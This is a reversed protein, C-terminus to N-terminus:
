LHDFMATRYDSWLRTVDGFAFAAQAYYYHPLEDSGFRVESGVRLQARCHTCSHRLSGALLGISGALAAASESARNKQEGKGSEHKALLANSYQRADSLVDAPVNIGSNQAAELAQIQIVTTSIADFDHGEVKSTHYWGGQSSQSKAIYRVAK